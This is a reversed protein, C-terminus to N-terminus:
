FNYDSNGGLDETSSSASTKNDDEPLREQFIFVMDGEFNISGQTNVLVYVNSEDLDKSRTISVRADAADVLPYQPTRASSPSLQKDKESDYPYNNVIPITRQASSCCIECYRLYNNGYKSPIKFCARNTVKTTTATAKYSGHCLKGKNNYWGVYASPAGEPATSPIYGKLVVECADGVTYTIDECTRGAGTTPLDKVIDALKLTLTVENRWLLEMGAPFTLSFIKNRNFVPKAEESGYKITKRAVKGASNKFIIDTNNANQDEYFTNRANDFPVTALYYVGPELTGSAAKLTVHPYQKSVSFVSADPFKPSIEGSLPFGTTTRLTVSVIDTMDSPITIKVLAVDNQLSVSNETINGSSILYQGNIGGKVAIQESPITFTRMIYQASGEPSTSADKVCTYNSTAPYIAHKVTAGSPLTGTFQGSKSGPTGVFTFNAAQSDKGSSKGSPLYAVTIQDGANWVVNLGKLSTKTVNSDLSVSLTVVEDTQAVSAPDMEKVCGSLIVAAVGLLIFSIKKMANM